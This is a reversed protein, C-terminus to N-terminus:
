AALAGRWYEALAEALEIAFPPHLVAPAADDALGPPAAQWLGRTLAFSRMLLRVGRGTPVRLAQEVALGAQGLRAVFAAKFAHLEVPAINKELVGYSLSDLRLLEPHQGVHAVFAALFAAVKDSRRGRTRLFTTEVLDLAENCAQLLLALFIEEKTHFYLYVTGKALGAAAAIDAAAPLTGHSANFLTRAAALIAQRRATKDAADLAHRAMRAADLVANEHFSESGAVQRLAQYPPSEAWRESAAGYCAM